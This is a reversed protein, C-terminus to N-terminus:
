EPSGTLAALLAATQADPQGDFRAPRYKMQFAVMVKLTQADLTGTQPVAFGHALLKRQFWAMDPLQSEFRPQLAAVRAGDPWQVLGARALRTWPFQPGPDEKRQPAIDSHGLVREPPIKHRQVIDQVLQLVLDMQREDFPAWALSGDAQRKYGPNVIEIGISSANLQTVGKWSSVGAHFARQSEDVLGLIRPPNEDTVLYHSSVGREVLERLSDQLNLATYHLVVYRVRSDQNRSSYSRDVVPGSACGALLLALLAWAWRRMM